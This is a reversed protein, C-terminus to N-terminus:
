PKREAPETSVQQSDVSFMSEGKAMIEPVTASKIGKDQLLTYLPYEGGILECLKGIASTFDGDEAMLQGICWEVTEKERKTM